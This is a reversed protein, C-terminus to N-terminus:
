GPRRPTVSEWWTAENRRRFVLRSVRRSSTASLDLNRALHLRLKRNEFLQPHGSDMRRSPYNIVKNLPTNNVDIPYLVEFRCAPFRPRVFGHDAGHLERHTGPSIRSGSSNDLSRAYEHHDCYHLATSRWFHAPQITTTSRCEPATTRSYWWQVEGFQLYPQMGAAMLINAMDLHVQQWFSASTPSFNTQLSPTNLWVAKGSPYRQAIGAGVTTDGNGLEM